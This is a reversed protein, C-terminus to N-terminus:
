TQHAGCRGYVTMLSKHLSYGSIGTDPQQGNFVTGPQLELGSLFHISQQAAKRGTIRFYLERGDLTCQAAIDCDFAPRQEPPASADYETRIFGDGAIGLRSYKEAGYVSLSARSSYVYLRVDYDDGGVEFSGTDFVYKRGNRVAECLLTVANMMGNSDDRVTIRGDSIELPSGDLTVEWATIRYGDILDIMGTGDRYRPALIHRKTADTHREWCRRM